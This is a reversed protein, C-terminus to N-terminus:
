WKVFKVYDAGSDFDIKLLYVQPSLPAININISHFAGTTIEEGLLNYITYTRGYLFGSEASVFLKDSAPNPYVSLPAITNQHETIGVNGNHELWTSHLLFSLNNQLPAVSTVNIVPALSNDVMYNLRDVYIKYTNVALNGIGFYGNVDTVAYAVPQNQPDFLIITIGELSGGVAASRNAGQSILGGIFGPGGPNIGQVLNINISAMNALCLPMEFADYWFLANGFYTPINSTYYSSASDASGKMLYMGNIAQQHLYSGNSIVNTDVATLTGDLLNKRILWSKGIDLPQLGNDAYVIGSADYYNPPNVALVFERRSTNILIGNRYEDVKQSLVFIGITGPVATIIGTNPDISLPVPGGIMDGISFPALWPISIYPPASPSIPMPDVQSAGDHADDFSYVLVDGDPDTASADFSFNDGVYTFAAFENEFIPSSNALTPIQNYFTMGVDLPNILNMISGSRCCRQYALTYPGGSPTLTVTSYYNAKRICVNGPICIGQIFITLSDNVSLNMTTLLTGSGNFIGIAAPDDFPPFGNLCDRYVMLHIQYQNNGLYSYELTGGIIHTAFTNFPLLFFALLLLKHKM